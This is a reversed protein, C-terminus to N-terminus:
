VADQEALQAVLRRNRSQARLLAILLVVAIAGLLITGVTDSVTVPSYNGIAGAHEVDMTHEPFEM